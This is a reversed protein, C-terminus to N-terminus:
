QRLAFCDQLGKWATRAMPVGHGSTLHFDIILHGGCEVAGGEHSKCNSLEDNEILEHNQVFFPCSLYAMCFTCNLHILQTWIIAKNNNIVATM